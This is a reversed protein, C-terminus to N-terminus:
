KIIKKKFIKIKVIPSITKNFLVITKDEISMNLNMINLM